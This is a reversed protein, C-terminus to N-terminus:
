SQGQSLFGILEAKSIEKNRDKDAQTFAAGLWKKTAPADATTAPDSAQKLKVMWNDFEVKTLQGDKNGDYSPFETDVITAVQTTASAPTATTSATATAASDTGPSTAAQPAPQVQAAQEAPTAADAPQTAPQAAQSTAQDPVTTAPATAMPQRGPQTQPQTTAIQAIAPAAITMAGALLAYKLM